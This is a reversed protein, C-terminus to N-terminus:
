FNSFFSLSTLITSLPGVLKLKSWKSSEFSYVPQDVNLIKTQKTSPFKWIEQKCHGNQKSKESQDLCHALPLQQKSKSSKLLKHQKSELLCLKFAVSCRAFHPPFEKRSRMKELYKKKMLNEM